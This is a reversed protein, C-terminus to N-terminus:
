NSVKKSQFRSAIEHFQRDVTYFCDYARQVGVSSFIPGNVNKYSNATYEYKPTYMVVLNVREYLSYLLIHFTTGQLPMFSLLFVKNM